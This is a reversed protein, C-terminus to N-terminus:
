RPPPQEAGGVVGSPGRGLPRSGRREREQRLEGQLVAVAPEGGFVICRRRHVAGDGIARRALSTPRAQSFRGAAQCDTCRQRASAGVPHRRPPSGVGGNCQLEVLDRCARAATASRRAPPRRWSRRACRPLERGREEFLGFRRRHKGDQASRDSGLCEGSVSASRASSHARPRRGRDRRPAIRLLRM